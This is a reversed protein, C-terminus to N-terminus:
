RRFRPTRRPKGVYIKLKALKAIRGAAKLIGQLDDDTVPSHSLLLSFVELTNEPACESKGPLGRMATAIQDLYKGV